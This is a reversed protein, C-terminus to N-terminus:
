FKKGLDKELGFARLIESLFKNYEGTIEDSEQLIKPESAHTRKDM